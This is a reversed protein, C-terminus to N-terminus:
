APSGPEARRPGSRRRRRPRDPRAGLRRGPAGGREHRPAAARRSELRAGGPGRVGRARAHGVEGGLGLIAAPRATVRAFADRETMGAALLKSLTRPCTTARRSRRPAAPVPGDLDRGPPLGGRHGHEAVRFSFSGMGHGVDFRIGRERAAWVEDRVRGGALLGEPCDSFCYTVVDGPGSSRSSSGSRGTTTAGPGSCSRSGPRRPPRSARRGHRGASRHPRVDAPQRQRRDGLDGRGGNRAAARVAGACAAGDVDESAECSGAPRRRAGGRRHQHGAPRADALARDRRRPLAGPEPRRGRGPRARHDHRLAPPPRRPRRRVAVRRPRSPRPPGGARAPPRRGAAPAGRPGARRGGPGAAAIRGGIIAVAGPGDLGTAPCVVRGAHIVLDFPVSPAEVRPRSRCWRPPERIVHSRSVSSGQPQILHRPSRLM